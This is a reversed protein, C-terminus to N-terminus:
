PLGGVTTSTVVEYTFNFWERATRPKKGDTAPRTRPLIVVQVTGGLLMAKLHPGASGIVVFKKGGLGALQDKPFEPFGAFTVFGDAGAHRQVIQRFQEPDLGGAGMTGPREMEISETALLSLGKTRALTKAFSARQIEVVPDQYSGRKPLVLVVKGKGGLVTDTEEAAAAGLGEPLKTTEDARNQFQSRYSVALTGAIALVALLLLLTPKRM